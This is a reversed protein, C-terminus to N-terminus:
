CGMARLVKTRMKKADINNMPYAEFWRSFRDMVTLLYRNGKSSTQLPGVIDMHVTRFRNTKPYNIYKRKIKPVRKCKQCDECARVYEVVDKTM